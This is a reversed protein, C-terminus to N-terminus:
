TRPLAVLSRTPGAGTLSPVTETLQYRAVSGRQGQPTRQSLWASARELKEDTLFRRVAKWQVIPRGALRGAFYLLLDGAFIGFVCALVGPVFSLRGSAILAGTAICTLDESAFTALAILLLQTM